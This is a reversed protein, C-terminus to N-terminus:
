LLCPSARDLSKFEKVLRVLSCGPEYLESDASSLPGDIFLILALGVRPFLHVWRDRLTEKNVSIQPELFLVHDENRVARWRKYLILCM